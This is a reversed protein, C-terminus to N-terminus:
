KGTNEIRTSGEKEYREKERTNGQLDDPLRKHNRSRHPSNRETVKKSLISNEGAYKRSEKKKERRRCRYEEGQQLPVRGEHPSGKMGRGTQAHNVIVKKKSKIPQPKKTGGEGYSRKRM